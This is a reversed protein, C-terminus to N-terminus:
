VAKRRRRAALAALGAGLAIMTGPEPVTDVRFNDLYVTHPGVDAGARQFALHELTGWDGDVVGNPTGAFGLAPAGKLHISVTQWAGTALGMGAPTASNMTTSTGVWEIAGTTGGNAGVPGSGGTERIGVAIRLPSDTYIDFKLHQNLDVLPNPVRAGGFTTLRLWNGGVAAWQWSVELVQTSNTGFNAAVQAINPGGTNLQGSTSGSFNPARFMDANGVTAAEFDNFVIQGFSSSAVVSVVAAIAFRKM